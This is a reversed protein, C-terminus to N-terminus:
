EELDMRAGCIQCYNFMHTFDSAVSCGCISCEYLYDEYHFYQSQNAKVWRGHKQVVVNNAILYDVLSENNVPLNGLVNNYDVGNDQVSGVLELLKAKDDM